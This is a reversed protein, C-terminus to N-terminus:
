VNLKCRSYYLVQTYEATHVFRVPEKTAILLQLVLAIRNRTLYSFVM